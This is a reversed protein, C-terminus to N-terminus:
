NNLKAASQGIRVSTLVMLTTRSQPHELLKLFKVPVYCLEDGLDLLQHSKLSTKCILKLYDIHAPTQIDFSECMELYYQELQVWEYPKYMKGWKITLYKKDDETLEEDFDGGPDFQDISATGYSESDEPPRITEPKETKFGPAMQQNIEEEDLGQEEMIRRKEAEAEQALMESDEWRYKKWQNLKMKSAYRGLITTGSVKTPDKGYRALLTDWEDPIWPLDLAELIPLFTEPDWNDVHRTCCKKCETLKGDLPYRDLRLSTYFEDEGMTRGCTQCYYKKGTKPM